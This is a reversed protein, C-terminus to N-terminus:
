VGGKCPFSSKAHLGRSGRVGMPRGHPRYHRQRRPRPRVRDPRGAEAEGTRWPPPRRRLVHRRAHRGPPSGPRRPKALPRDRRHRLRDHDRRHPRTSRASRRASFCHGPEEGRRDHLRRHRGGKGRPADKAFQRVPRTRDSLHQGRSPRGRSPRQDPQWEDPRRRHRAFRFPRRPHHSRGSRAARWPRARGPPHDRQPRRRAPHGRPGLHLAPRCGPDARLGARADPGRGLRQRPRPHPADAGRRDRRRLHQLPSADPPRSRARPRLPRAHGLAGEHSGRAPRGRRAWRHRDPRYHPALQFPE